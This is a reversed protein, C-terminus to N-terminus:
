SALVAAPNPSGESIAASPGPGPAEARGLAGKTPFRLASIADTACFLSQRLVGVHVRSRLLSARAPELSAGPRRNPLTTPVVVLAGYRSPFLRHRAQDRLGLEQRRGCRISRCNTRREVLGLRGGGARCRLRTAAASSSTDATAACNKPAIRGPTDPAGARLRGREVVLENRRQGGGSVGVRLGFGLDGAREPEGASRRGARDNPAGCAAASGATSWIKIM